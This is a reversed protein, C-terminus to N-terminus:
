ESNKGVLQRLLFLEQLWGALQQHQAACECNPCRQAVDLAHAIAESLTLKGANQADLEPKEAVPKDFVHPAVVKLDEVLLDEVLQQRRIVARGAEQEQLTLPHLGGFGIGLM